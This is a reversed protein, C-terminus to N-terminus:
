HAIPHLVHVHECSFFLSYSLVVHKSYGGDWDSDWDDDLGRIKDPYQSAAVEVAMEEEGGGRLSLITAQRQGCASVHQLCDRLAPPQILAERIAGVPGGLLTLQLVLGLCWLARSPVAM